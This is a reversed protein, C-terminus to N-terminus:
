RSTEQHFANVKSGDNCEGARLVESLALVTALAETTATGHLQLVTVAYTMLSVRGEGFRRSSLVAAGPAYEHTWHTTNM